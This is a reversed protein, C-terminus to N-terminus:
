RSSPTSPRSSTRRWTRPRARSCRTCRLDARGALAFHQLFAADDTRFTANKTFDSKLAPDAIKNRLQVVAITGGGDHPDTIPVPSCAARTCPARWSRRRRWGATSTGSTTTRTSSRTSRRTTWRSSSSSARAPCTSRRSRRPPSRCRTWRCSSATAAAAARAKNDRKIEAETKFRWLAHHDADVWYLIAEECSFLRKLAECSTETFQEFTTASLVDLAFDSVAQQQMAGLTWAIAAGCM